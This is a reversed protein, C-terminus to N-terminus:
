ETIQNQELQKAPLKGGVYAFVCGVVINAYYSIIRWLLIAPFITASSFFMGFFVYFSGEAGGSAGPLPVFASVMSVFAQASIMTLVSQEGFHFSRYIFYPILCTCTIQVVTFLTIELYVRLDRGILKTSGHFIDLKGHIKEYREQPHRCLRIRNLFKLSGLLVKDTLGANISFLVVLLIFASNTALGILILFSFNSVNNQFFGLKLVVLVLSYLVMIIQYFITRLAIVSTGVGSDVGMKRMAYIQMPQGGTAFPTLAGYLLGIMGVTFSYGYTWGPYVRKCLRYLCLGELMWAGVAAALAMSLWAWDLTHFVQSLESIESTTFLFYLLIGCTLSITIVAFLNRRLMDMFRKM